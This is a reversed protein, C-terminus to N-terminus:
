KAYKQLLSDISPTNSGAIENIVGRQGKPVEAQVGRTAIARNNAKQKIVAASDGIQPFYQKEANDFESPSIVAGSERRLTANIFDRKAQDLQQQSGSSAANITSGVGFGARSFPVSTTTGKGALDNIIQDSNQMRTGFLAAKSQADTLPKDAGSKPSFGEVRKINGQKDQQVLVKNGSEDTVEFPKSMSAANSERSRSDVMNQGRMQVQRSAANDAAMRENSAKNDPSQTNLSSNLVRTAGTMGETAITDTTGGLNRTVFQPKNLETYKTMGLAVKPLYNRFEEPTQPISKVMDELTGKSEMFSKTDPDRFQAAYWRVMDQPTQVTDLADKYMGIKKIQTEIAKANTESKTKDIDSQNKMYTQAPKMGFGYLKAQTAPDNLNPNTSMFQALANQQQSTERDQQLKFANDDYQQQAAKIQMQKALVNEYPEFKPSIDRLIISPDLGAM